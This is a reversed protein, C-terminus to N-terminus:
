PKLVCHNHKQRVVSTWSAVTTMCGIVPGQPAGLYFLGVGIVQSLTKLSTLSIIIVVYPLRHSPPVLVTAKKCWTIKQLKSDIM